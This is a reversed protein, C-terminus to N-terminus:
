EIVEDARALVTPPVDIGLAKATKLNIVLEYKTPAQVPLDAPKEGKLIRDVYGAARRYQDLFNITVGYSMLGGNKPFDPMWSIAPLRHRSALEAILQQRLYTFPDTTLILGGSPARALSEFAHEIDATARVPVVVSQVRLSSAAAEISRMFFKAQPATDPNFMIAVRALGPAIEKLLDLWKGGVSFETGSFGTLNGGPKPLSAVFGQAVPDSVQVFVVPATSTAQRVIELNVTTVALIVDPMLGILQAAYTRALAADGANWRIDVRLNQGEVWGLQRLGQVFAAMYSQAEDTAAGNMLVGIRRMREGQQARAAFPWALAAGGITALFKRREVYSAM